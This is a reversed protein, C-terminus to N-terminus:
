ICEYVLEQVMDKDTTIHVEKLNEDDDSMEGGDAFKKSKLSDYILYGGVAALIVPLM